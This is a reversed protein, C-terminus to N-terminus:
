RARRADRVQPNRGASEGAAAHPSDRWVLVGSRLAGGAGHLFAGGRQGTHVPYPGGVWVGQGAPAGTGVIERDPGSGHGTSWPACLQHHRHRSRMRDGAGKQREVARFGRLRPHAIGGLVEAGGSRRLIGQHRGTEHLAPHQVPARELLRSSAHDHGHREDHHQESAVQNYGSRGAGEVPPGISRASAEGHGGGGFLIGAQRGQRADPLTRHGRGGAGAAGALLRAGHPTREQAPVRGAALGSVRGVANHDGARGVARVCEEASAAFIVDGNLVRKANEM